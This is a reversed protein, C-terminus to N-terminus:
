PFRRNGGKPQFDLPEATKEPPPLPLRLTLAASLGDCANGSQDNALWWLINVAHSWAPPAPDTAPQNGAPILRTWDLGLGAPPEGLERAIRGYNGALESLEQRLELIRSASQGLIPEVREVQERIAANLETSASRLEELRKGLRERRRRKLEAGREEELIARRQQAEGLLQESAILESRLDVRRTTDLSADHQEARLAAVREELEAIETMTNGISDILDDLDM